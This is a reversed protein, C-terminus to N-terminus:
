RLGDFYAASQADMTRFSHSHSRMHAALKRLELVGNAYSAGFVAGVTEFTRAAHVSVEDLAASVPSLAGQRGSLAGDLRDALADLRAAVRDASVADFEVYGSM